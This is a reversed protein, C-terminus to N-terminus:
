PKPVAASQEEGPNQPRFPLIAMITTGRGPESVIKLRGGLAALRERMGVLGLGPPKGNAPPGPNPEFGVGDDQVALTIEAGERQLRIDVTRARAHKIANSLAEQYIRFLAIEVEPQLRQRKLGQAHLTIRLDELHESMRELNYELAPVLGTDLAPPRLRATVNRIGHALQTTLDILQRCKAAHEQEPLPQRFVGLELQLVTVLQGLEDHLDRALSTREDEDTRDLYRCLQHIQEEAEKRKTAENFTGVMRLARGKSDRAIVQGIAHFWSWEGSKRRLRHDTEYFSSRGELHDQLVKMVLPYDEPHILEKWTQVSHEMEGPAYGLVSEGGASYYAKGTTFDWDWLGSSTGELALRLREESKRLEEEMRQRQHWQAEFPRYFFYYAPWLVVMMSAVDTLVEFMSTDASMHVKILWEASEALFLVVLVVGLLRGPSIDFLPHKKRWERWTPSNEPTDEPSLLMKKGEIFASFKRM